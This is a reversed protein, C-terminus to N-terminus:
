TREIIYFKDDAYQDHTFSVKENIIPILSKNIEIGISNRRLKRAVKM